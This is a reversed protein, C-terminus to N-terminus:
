FDQHFRITSLPLDLRSGLHSPLRAPREEHYLHCEMSARRTLRVSRGPVLREKMILSEWDEERM